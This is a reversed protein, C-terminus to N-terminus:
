QKGKLAEAAAGCAVNLSVFDEAFLQKRHSPLSVECKQFPNWAECPMHLEETLIKLLAKSRAVGGSVFVKGVTEERRGQHQNGLADQAARVTINVLFNGQIPPRGLQLHTQAELSITELLQDSLLVEEGRLQLLGRSLGFQVASPHM